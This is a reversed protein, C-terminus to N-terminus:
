RKREQELVELDHRAKRNSTITAWILGALIVVTAAYASIVYITYQDTFM